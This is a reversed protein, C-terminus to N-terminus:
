QIWQLKLLIVFPIVLHGSNGAKTRGFCRIQHRDFLRSTIDTAPADFNTLLGNTMSILIVQLSEQDIDASTKQLSRALFRPLLVAPTVDAGHPSFDV